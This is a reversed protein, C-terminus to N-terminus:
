EEAFMITEYDIERFASPHEEVFVLTDMAWSGVMDICTGWYDGGGRGNGVCTLIPLPHITWIGKSWKPKFGAVSAYRRLDIYVGKDLNLIYGDRHIKPVEDFPREREDQRDGWVTKYVKETYYEDFDNTDTAYDGVWAVNCPNDWISELVGNVFDNELWSHEMLKLGSFNYGWSNPDKDEFGHVEVEKASKIGNKTMYIANQPCFVKAGDGDKVYAMYYQGM